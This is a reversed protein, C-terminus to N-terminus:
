QEAVDAGDVKQRIAFVLFEMPAVVAVGVECVVQGADVVPQPNNTPDCKVYFGEAPVAGKLGGRRWVGELFVSLSHALARRLADTNSEFVAWRTSHDVSQEIMSMLRRVHIFRWDPDDPAALSRAGWVRIGRNPFPRIANVGRYNLDEQQLATVTEAVDTVLELAVNAPPQQVGFQNDTAAYVGAVYGSPPVARTPGDVGLPDPVNLWPYYTAAFRHIFGDRWKLTVKQWDTPQAGPGRVLPGPPPRPPPDLIAVRDRLQECQGLMARYILYARSEPQDAPLDEPPLETGDDPVAPGAKEKTRAPPDCPDAPPPNFQTRPAPPPFVADPVCLIAVEDIEELLRLGRRYPLGEGTFDTVSVGRLGDRGREEPAPPHPADAVLHVARGEVGAVRILNSFNNVRPEVYFGSDRNLSLHNYYEEERPLGPVGPGEVAVRLSFDRFTAGGGFPAVSLRLRNGWQGPSRAEVTVPTGAKAVATGCGHAEELPRVLRVTQGERGAVKCPESRGLADAQLVLYDGVRVRDAEPLGPLDVVTIEWQGPQAPRALQAATVAGPLRFLATRPRDGERPADAAAVRVVYCTTGGNAFFGRVAYALCGGRLFGGFTTLFEKWSTVRVALEEARAPEYGPAPPLPGRETYGVFGAVDTRVLRVGAAPQPQPQRYVGPTLYVRRAPDTTPAETPV